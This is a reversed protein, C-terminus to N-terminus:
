RWAALSSYWGDCNWRMEENTPKPIADLCLDALAHAIQLANFRDRREIALAYARALLDEKNRIEAPSTFDARTALISPLSGYMVELRDVYDFLDQRRREERPM